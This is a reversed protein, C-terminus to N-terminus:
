THRRRTKARFRVSCYAGPPTGQSVYRRPRAPSRRSTAATTSIASRGPPPAAPRTPPPSWTEKATPPSACRCPHARSTMLSQQSGSTCSNGLVHALRRTPRPSRTAETTSRSAYARQRVPCAPSRPKLASTRLTSRGPRTSTLSSGHARAAPPITRPRSTAARTAPSACPHPQARSQNSWNLGRSFWARAPGSRLVRPLIRRHRSAAKCPASASRSRRVPSTRRRWDSLAADAGAPPGLPPIAPSPSTGSRYTAWPQRHRPPLRLAYGRRRAPSRTATPTRARPTTLRSTRSSRSPSRAGRRGSPRHAPPPSSGEQTTSRRACRVQRVRSRRLRM